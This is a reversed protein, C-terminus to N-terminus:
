LSIAREITTKRQAQICRLRRHSVKIAMNQFLPNKDAMQEFLTEKFLFNLISKINM